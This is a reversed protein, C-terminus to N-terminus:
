VHNDECNRFIHNLLLNERELRDENLNLEKNKIELCEALEEAATSREALEKNEAKLRLCEVHLNALNEVAEKLEGRLEDEELVEPTTGLNKRGELMRKLHGKVELLEKRQQGNIYALDRATKSATSISVYGKPM